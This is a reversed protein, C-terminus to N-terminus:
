LSRVSGDPLSIETRSRQPIDLVLENGNIEPGSESLDLEQQTVIQHLKILSQNTGRFWFGLMEIRMSLHKENPAHGLRPM